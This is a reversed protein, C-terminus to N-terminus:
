SKKIEFETKVSSRFLGPVNILQGRQISLEYLKRRLTGKTFGCKECIQKADHRKEILELIQEDTTRKKQTAKKTMTQEKKILNNSEPSFPLLGPSWPLWRHNVTNSNDPISQTVKSSLAVIRDICLM